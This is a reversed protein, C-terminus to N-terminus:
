EFMDNCLFSFDEPGYYFDPEEEGSDSWQDTLDLVNSAAPYSSHEMENGSDDNDDDDELWLDATALNSELVESDFALAPSGGSNSLAGSGSVWNNAIQLPNTSSRAASNLGSSWNEAIEM